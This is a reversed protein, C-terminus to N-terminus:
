LMSHWQRTSGDNTTIGSSLYAVIYEGEYDEVIKYMEKRLADYLHQLNIIRIYEIGFDDVCLNSWVPRSGHKWLGPAHPQEFDGHHGLRKKLLKNALIGVQPLRYMGKQIEMYVFGNKAKRRLDYHDVINDPFLDLPMRMYEYWNLPTELYMNKIDARAFRADPTSIVSNWMIKSSLMDATRTTLEFPYKILNGGM